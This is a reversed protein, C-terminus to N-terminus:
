FFGFLCLLRWTISHLRKQRWLRNSAALEIRAKLSVPCRSVLEITQRQDPTMQAAMHMLLSNAINSKSYGTGSYIRRARKLFSTTINTSYGVVNSGHQRYRTLPEDIFVQKGYVSTVLYILHDHLTPPADRFKVLESLAQRNCALACGTMINEVLANGLGCARPINSLKITKNFEDVLRLRSFVAFPQPSVDPFETLFREIKNSEWIDDQDCFFFVDADTSLARVSLEIFSREPGINNGQDLEVQCPSGLLKALAVAITKDRSGDDRILLIDPRHTQELLSDIQREIFREGNYTSLLIATKLQRKKSANARLDDM